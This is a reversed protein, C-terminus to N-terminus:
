RHFDPLVYKYNGEKGMIAPTHEGGKSVETLYEHLKLMFGVLNVILTLHSLVNPKM